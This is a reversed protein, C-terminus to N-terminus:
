GLSVNTLLLIIVNTLKTIYNNIQQLRLTTEPHFKINKLAEPCM